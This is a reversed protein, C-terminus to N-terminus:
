RAYYKIAKSTLFEDFKDGIVMRIVEVEKAINILEASYQEGTEISIQKTNKFKLTKNLDSIDQQRKKTEEQQEKHQEYPITLLRVLLVVLVIGLPIDVVLGGMSNSWQPHYRMVLHGCYALIEFVLLGAWLAKGFALRLIKWWYKVIAAM